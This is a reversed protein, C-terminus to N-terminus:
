CTSEVHVTEIVETIARRCAVQAKFNFIRDATPTTYETSPLRERDLMCQMSSNIVFVLYDLSHINEHITSVRPLM